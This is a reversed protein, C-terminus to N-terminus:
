SLYPQKDEGCNKPKEVQWNGLPIDGHQKVYAELNKSLLENLTAAGSPSLAVYVTEKFGDPAEFHFILLFSEKTYSVEFSNCFLVKNPM